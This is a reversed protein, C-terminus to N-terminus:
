VAIASIIASIINQIAMLCNIYYVGKVDKKKLDSNESKPQVIKITSSHLNM